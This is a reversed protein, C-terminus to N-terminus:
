LRYTKGTEHPGYIILNLPPALKKPSADGSGADDGPPTAGSAIPSLAKWLRELSRAAKAKIEIGSSQPNWEQGPERSQLQELPVIEDSTADRVSDFAM